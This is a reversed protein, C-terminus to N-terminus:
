RDGEKDAEDEAEDETEDETEADPEPESQAEPESEPNSPPAFESDPEPEPDPDSNTETEAETQSDTEPTTQEAQPEEDDSEPEKPRTLEVISFGQRLAREARERAPIVGSFKVLDCHYLWQRVDELSLGAPWDVEELHVLIETTTLETGRFGYRRGLYERVAESMRVYYIMYEGRDLLDDTTLASLKELAVVHAPRPPPGPAEEEGRRTLLFTAAAVVLAGLFIGGVWALTYDDTWVAVPERPPKLDPTKDAPLVSVIKADVPETHLELAQGDASLVTIPFSPLTTSGPRFIQFVLTLTTTEKAEDSTSKRRTDVLEWRPNGFSDPLHVSSGAPHEIQLQLELRQGVKAAEPAGFSQEVSAAATDAESQAGAEDPTDPKDPKDPKDPQDASGDDTNASAPTPSTSAVQPGADPQAAATASALTWALLGALAAVFLRGTKPLLMM